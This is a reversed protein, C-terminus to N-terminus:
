SGSLMRVDVVGTLQKLEDCLPRVQSADDLRFSVTVTAAGDVPISQNVTMINAQAAYLTALVGSLVGSKDHLLLYVTFIHQNMQEEYIFVSDRYKYFASRSIGIRRCAASSSKEERNALLRKVMLTKIIVEPLVDVDVVVWNKKPIDM